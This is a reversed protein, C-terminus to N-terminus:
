SSIKIKKKKKKSCFGNIQEITGGTITSHLLEVKKKFLAIAILATFNGSLLLVEVENFFFLISFQLLKFLAKQAYM